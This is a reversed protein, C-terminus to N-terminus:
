DEFLWKSNLDDADREVPSNSDGVFQKETVENVLNIIEKEADTKPPHPLLGRIMGIQVGTILYRGGM